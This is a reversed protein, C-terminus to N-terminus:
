HRFMTLGFFSRSQLVAKILEHTPLRATLVQGQLMHSTNVHNKILNHALKGGGDLLNAEKNNDLIFFMFFLLLESKIILKASM